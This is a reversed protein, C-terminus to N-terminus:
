FNKSQDTVIRLRVTRSFFLESSSRTRIHGCFENLIELYVKHDVTKEFFIPGIIRKRSIASWVGIKQPHLPEEQSIFPNNESWYRNNQSNRPPTLTFWAEDTFFIEADPRDDVFKLYWQCFALRSKFDDPKLEHMSSVKFPRLNLAKTAACMSGLSMEFENARMRLSKRPDNAYSERVKEIVEPKLVKRQRVRKKPQVSGEDEFKKVLKYICRKSPPKEGRFVRTFEKQVKKPSSFEHCLKVITTRQEQSFGM